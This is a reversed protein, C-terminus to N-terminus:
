IRTQARVVMPESKFLRPVSATTRKDSPPLLAALALADAVEEDEEAELHETTSLMQAVSSCGDDDARSAAAQHM